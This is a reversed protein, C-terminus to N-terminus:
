AITDKLLRELTTKQQKLIDRETSSANAIQDSIFRVIHQGTLAFYRCVVDFFWDSPKMNGLLLIMHDLMHIFKTHSSSFGGDSYQFTRVMMKTNSLDEGEILADWAGSMLQTVSIKAGKEHKIFNQPDNGTANLKVCDHLDTTIDEM